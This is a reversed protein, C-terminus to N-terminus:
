ILTGWACFKRILSRAEQVLETIIVGNELILEFPLFHGLEDNWSRFVRNRSSHNIFFSQFDEITEMLMSKQSIEDTSADPIKKEPFGRFIEIYGGIGVGMLNVGEKSVAPNDAASESQNLNEEFSPLDDFYGSKPTSRFKLFNLRSFSIDNPRVTKPSRRFISKPAVERDITEEIINCIEGDYVVDAPHGVELLLDDSRDTFGIFSKVLIRGSHDPDDAMGGSGPKGNFVLGVLSDEPATFLYLL